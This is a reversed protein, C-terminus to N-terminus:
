CSPLFIVSAHSQHLSTPARGSAADRRCGRHNVSVVARVLASALTSCAMDVKPSLYRAAVRAAVSRQQQDISRLANLTLQPRPVRRSVLPVVCRLRNGVEVLGKCLTEVQYGDHVLNVKRRCVWVPGQLLHSCAKLQVRLFCNQDRSFGAEVHGLNEWCHYFLNGRISGM